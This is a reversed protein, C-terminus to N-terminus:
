LKSNREANLYKELFPIFKKEVNDYFLNKFNPEETIICEFDTNYPIWIMENTNFKVYIGFVPIRKISAIHIASTDPSFLMDLELIGAAFKDFDESVPYIFKDDIIAKAREFDKKDTFLLINLNYHSISKILSKFRNIGWFRADSGASINIGLLFKKEPFTRKIFDKAFKENESKPYYFVRKEKQSINLSFLDVLKLMRDIVHNKTPDLRSVTHTYIGSNDKKLGFKYQIKALAFLFSVTTSVDDHLDVTVNFKEKKILSLTKFFGFLGKQFIFVKEIGPVNSFVFHNKRDALVYLILKPNSMLAEILPTVVLADGIRNLRVLLVKTPSNFRPLNKNPETKSILLLFKLFIKKLVKEIKKLM